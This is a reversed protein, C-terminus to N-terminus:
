AQNAQSKAYQQLTTELQKLTLLFGQFDFNGLHDSQFANHVVALTSSKGSRYRAPKGITLGNETAIRKLGDLIRHLNETNHEWGTIKIVLKIEGKVTNEIQIYLHYADAISTSPYWFGLFGGMQNAVYRWKSKSNSEQLKMYFGEATRWNSTINQLKDIRNTQNEIETLHTM